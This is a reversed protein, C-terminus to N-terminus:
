RISPSESGKPMAVRCSAMLDASLGRSRGRRRGLSVLVIRGHTCEIGSGSRSCRSAHPEPLPEIRPLLRQDLPNPRSPGLDSPCVRPGSSDDASDQPDIPLGQGSDAPQLMKDPQLWVRPM